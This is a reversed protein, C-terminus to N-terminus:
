KGGGELAQKAVEMARCFEVYYQDIAEQPAVCTSYTEWADHVRILIEWLRKNEAKMEDVAMGMSELQQELDNIRQFPSWNADEFEM